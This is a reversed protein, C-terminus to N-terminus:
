PNECDAVLTQIKARDREVGYTRSCSNSDRAFSWWFAIPELWRKDIDASENRISHLSRDSRTSVLLCEGVAGHVCHDAVAASTCVSLWAISLHAIGKLSPLAKM